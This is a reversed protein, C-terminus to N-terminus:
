CARKLQSQLRKTMRSFTQGPPKRDPLPGTAGLSAVSNTLLNLVFFAGIPSIDIGGIPPVVGRFLNLYVDSVTFVPRLLAVSQAQPFWSLLIRLTILGSYISLFNVGGDVLIYEAMSDGPIILAMRPTTSQHAASAHARARRDVLATRPQISSSGASATAALCAFAVLIGAGRMM